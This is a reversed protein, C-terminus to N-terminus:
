VYGNQFFFFTEGTFIRLAISKEIKHLGLGRLNPYSACLLVDEMSSSEVNLWKIKHHISPLIQSYFRDLIQDDLRDLIPGDLIKKSDLPAFM